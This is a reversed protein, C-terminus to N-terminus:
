IPPRVDFAVTLREGERFPVTGHWMWSPFLVLQAVKPEVERHSSVAMGLKEDPEGLTLWGANEPEGALREPLAVYLASSIWGQPHVHNSHRGGARLRVSWSGSFRIRRERSERLLPHRPDPAPLQAVYKEVAAVVAARLKRIEPDIRCFLPGDTQTGGRVSQDLYEGRAHHLSRLKKALADLPALDASLDTVGVLRSDGELWESRPDGSVRWATAAYAWVEASPNRQLEHDVIPLLADVEGVRLLHRIRWSGIHPVINAPAGGFLAAPFTAGDFEAADIAEYIAFESSQVGAARARELTPRLTDYAGRRLQVNLLSEWLAQATPFRSLARELSATTQQPRGLTAEFQALQEHGYTWMPAQELVAALDAAAREGDGSANRAAALGVIVSGDQPALSLATEFLEVAPLGAEMATQARAQAIKPGNPKLFAAREFSALAEEHEDLSRQLLGLWHWLIPRNLKEAGARVAPIAAEEQGSDLAQEAFDTLQEVDEVNAPFGV